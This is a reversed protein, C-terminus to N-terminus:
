VIVSHFSHFKASTVFCFFLHGLRSRNPLCATCYPKVIRKSNKTADRALVKPSPPTLTKPDIRQSHTRTVTNIDPIITSLPTNYKKGNNKKCRLTVFSGCCTSSPRSNETHTYTRRPILSEHWLRKQSYTFTFSSFVIQYFAHYKRRERKKSIAKNKQKKKKRKGTM